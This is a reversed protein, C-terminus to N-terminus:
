NRYTWGLLNTDNREQMSLWADTLEFEGTLGDTEAATGARVNEYSPVLISLATPLSCFLKIPQTPSRPHIICAHHNGALDM